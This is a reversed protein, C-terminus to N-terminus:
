NNNEILNQSWESTEMLVSDLRELARTLFIEVWCPTATITQRRYSSGWGKVFSIRIHGM